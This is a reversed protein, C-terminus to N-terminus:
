KKREVGSFVHECESAISHAGTNGLVDCDDFGWSVPRVDRPNQHTLRAHRLHLPSRDWTFAWGIQWLEKQTRASCVERRFCSTSSYKSQTNGVLWFPSRAVVDRRGLGDCDNALM